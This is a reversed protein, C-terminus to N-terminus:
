LFPFAEKTCDERIINFLERSQESLDVISALKVKGLECSKDYFL